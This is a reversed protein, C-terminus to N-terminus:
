KKRGRKRGAKGGRKSSPAGNQGATESRTGEGSGDSKQARKSAWYAKMREGQAKRAEASMDGKRKPQAATKKATEPKEARRKAWYAKMRKGVAKREAASMRRRKRPRPAAGDASVVRPASTRGLDPFARLISEREQSIVELRAQAGVRAFQQLQDRTM